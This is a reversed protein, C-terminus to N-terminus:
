ITSIDGLSFNAKKHQSLDYSLEFLLWLAITNIKVLIAKATIFVGLINEILHSFHPSIVTVLYTVLISSSIRIDSTDYLCSFLSEETFQTLHHRSYFPINLVIKRVLIFMVADFENKIFM